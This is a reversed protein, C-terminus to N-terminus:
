TMDTGERERRLAWGSKEFVNSDRHGQKGESGPGRNDSKESIM